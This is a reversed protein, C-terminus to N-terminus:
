RIASGLSTLDDATGFVRDKGASRVIVDRRNNIELRIPTNWPDHARIRQISVERIGMSRIVEEASASQRDPRVFIFDEAAERLVDLRRKAEAEGSLTVQTEGVAQTSSGDGCAAAVTVFLAILSAYGIEEFV